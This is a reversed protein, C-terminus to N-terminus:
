SNGSDSFNSRMRSLKRFNIPINVGGSPLFARESHILHSSVRSDEIRYKYSAWEKVGPIFVSWVGMFGTREMYAPRSEWDTFSGIVSINRAHPAYVTFRVGECGEYVFHAGFMEYANICHGQHFSEIIKEQEMHGGSCSLFQDIAIM